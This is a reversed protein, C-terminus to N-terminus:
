EREPRPEGIYTCVVAFKGWVVTDSLDCFTAVFIASGMDSERDMADLFSLTDGKQCGMNRFAEAAQPVSAVSCRKSGKIIATNDAALGVTSTVAGMSAVAVAWLVPTRGKQVVGNLSLKKV